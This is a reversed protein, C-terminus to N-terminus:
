GAATRIPRSGPSTSAGARLSSSSCCTLLAELLAHRRHPLRVGLREGGSGAPVRELEARAAQAGARDGGGEADDLRHERGAQDWARGARGPDAPLGLESEGAGAAGRTCAGRRSDTTFPTLVPNPKVSLRPPVRAPTRRTPRPTRSRRHTISTRLRQATAALPRPRPAPARPQLVRRLPPSCARSPT